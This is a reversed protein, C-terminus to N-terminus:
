QRKKKGELRANKALDAIKSSFIPSFSIKEKDAINLVKLHPRKNENWKVKVIIPKSLKDNFAMKALPIWMAEAM